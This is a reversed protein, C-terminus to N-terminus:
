AHMTREGCACAVIREILLAGAALIGPTSATSVPVSAAASPKFGSGCLGTVTFGCSTTSLFRSPEAKLIGGYTTSGVSLARKTPSATAITIASVAIAALSPASATTTSKSGKDDTVLVTSAM